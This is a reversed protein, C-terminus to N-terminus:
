YHRAKEESGKKESYTGEKNGIAVVGDGTVNETNKDEGYVLPLM